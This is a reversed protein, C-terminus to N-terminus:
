APPCACAGGCRQVTVWIQGVNNRYFWTPDESQGVADNPYLVLAGAQSVQVLPMRSLDQHTAAGAPDPTHVAAVLSFWAIDPHRKLGNFLQMLWNGREGHPPTNRRTQDFWVQDPPVRLCYAEGPRVQVGTESRWQAALVVATCRQGAELRAPCPALDTPPASDVPVATYSLSACATLGAALLLTARRFLGLDHRM